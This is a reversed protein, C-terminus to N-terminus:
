KALLFPFFSSMRELFFLDSCIYEIQFLNLALFHFSLNPARATWTIMSCKFVMGIFSSTSKFVLKHDEPLNYAHLLTQTNIFFIVYFPCSSLYLFCLTQNPKRKGFPFSVSSLPVVLILYISLHFATATTRTFHHNTIMHHRCRHHHHDHRDSSYFLRKKKWLHPYQDHTVMERDHSKWQCIKVRTGTNNLTLSKLTM